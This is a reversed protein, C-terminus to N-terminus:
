FRLGFMAMATVGELNVTGGGASDIDDTIIYKGEIGVFLKEFNYKFGVFANGGLVWDNESDGVPGVDVHTAVYYGGAGVGAYLELSAIWCSGRLQLQIPVGWAEAEVVGHPDKGWFYGSTLEVALNRLIRYGFAAEANVGVDLDDLDDIFYLPGAKLTLYNRFPDTRELGPASPVVASIAGLSLSFAQAGVAPLATQTATHLGVPAITLGDIEEIIGPLGPDEQALAVPSLLFLVVLSLFAIRIRQM